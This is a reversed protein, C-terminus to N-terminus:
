PEAFYKRVKAAVQNDTMKDVTEVVVIRDQLKKRELRQRFESKAEGPGFVLIATAGRLCAIIADYYLNYQGTLRRQRSDDAPVQQAEYPTTSRVGGPRGLQKNVHSIILRTEEGKETIAVILAQRHDIWLGVSRKM